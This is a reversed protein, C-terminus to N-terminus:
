GSLKASRYGEACDIAIQQGEKVARAESFLRVVNRWHCDTGAELPHTSLQINESLKTTFYILLGNVRGDKTIAVDSLASVAEDEGTLLNAQRMRFPESLVQWEKAAQTAVTFVTAADGSLLADFRVGYKENWTQVIEPKFQYKAVVEDPVQVLVGWLEVQEPIVKGGPKLFRRVADRYTELVDEGFPDNGLVEGVIVDVPEPISVQTSWGSILTVKEALGNDAFLKEASQRVSGAELAYVKKAGAHAAFAALVGTGSGIDVVVDGAKVVRQIANKFAQTRGQDNLMAIHISAQDFPAESATQGEEILVGIEYLHGIDRLALLWDQTGAFSPKLLELADTVSKPSSFAELLRLTNPGSVHTAGRLRFRVEGRADLSFDLDPLRCLVQDLGVPM